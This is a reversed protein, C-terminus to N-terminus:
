WAYAFAADQLRTLIKEQESFSDEPGEYESISEEFENLCERIKAMEEAKEKSLIGLRYACSFNFWDKTGSEVENYRSIYIEEAEQTSLIGDQVAYVLGSLTELHYEQGKIEEIRETSDKKESEM